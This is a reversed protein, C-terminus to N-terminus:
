FCLFLTLNHIFLMFFNSHVVFIFLLFTFLSILYSSEKNIKKITVWQSSHGFFSLQIIRLYYFCSIVSTFLGTFALFYLSHGVANFLAFMKSFFGIFPPVGAISFFSIILSIGIFQNTKSVIILDDIYKLKKLNYNKKIVILLLFVSLSMLVYVLLYFILAFIGEFSSSSLCVLMFGVHSIGSFALLRKLKLQWIAGLSGIFMSCFSSFIILDQWFFFFTYFSDFFLRLFFIFMGIKPIVVFFATIITPSGEYIDPSWFHFPAASIKFLFSVTLFIVGLLFGDINLFDYNLNFSFLFM